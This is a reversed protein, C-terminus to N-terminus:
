AAGMADIVAARFDEAEKKTEFGCTINDGGGSRWFNVLWRDGHDHKQHVSGITEITDIRSAYGDRFHYVKRM